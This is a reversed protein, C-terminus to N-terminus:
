CSGRRPCPVLCLVTGEEGALFGALAVGVCVEAKVKWVLPGWNQPWRGPSALTRSCPTHGLLQGLKLSVLMSTIEQSGSEERYRLPEGWASESCEPWPQVAHVNATGM